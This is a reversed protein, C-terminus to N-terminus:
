SKKGVKVETVRHDRGSFNVISCMGSIRSAIRDDLREALEDLSKNSTIITPMMERYRKDIIKYVAEVVYPTPREVGMDDLVLVPFEAYERILQAETNEAGPRFCEKLEDILEAMVIMKTHRLKLLQDRLLAAALLTKGTGRPGTLFLGPKADEWGDVFAQVPMPLTKYMDLNAQVRHIKGVGAGRMTADIKEAVERMRERRRIEKETAMREEEEAEQRELCAPCASPTLWKQIFPLLIPEIAVGCDCKTPPPPVPPEDTTTRTSTRGLESSAGSILKALADRMGALPRGREEERDKIQQGQM